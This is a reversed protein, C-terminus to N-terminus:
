IKKCTEQISNKIGNLLRNFDKLPVTLHPLVVIVDGLPRIWVGHSRAKECVQYGMRWSVPFPQRSPKDRVLEIGAMFGMQRVDGVVPLDRLKQLWERLLKTKMELNKIVSNKQYLGLNALAAACALPNATYTHGHFFTKFDEYKGLFAKYIDETAMTAALPLYGGTISKALCLLDPQIHEHAAAFMKGTRGFGTAVEDVILLVNYQRCLREFGSLYGPPMVIMGAAGQVLPEVIAAAIKESRSKLITEVSKLCEWHCGTEKRAEGPKPITQNLTEGGTRLRAETNIKRYSCRYCYPSQAFHAKFLLPKFKKHFLGMGGVSVSGITDGHYSNELALFSSRSVCRTDRSAYLQNWYQYAMKLAIEVSTAGSDSYFVRSLKQPTIEVLQKALQIAPEHTLGLFTTHAMKNLQQKIAKNLAPHNHGHVTTWLSSVGDLYRKGNVDTLYAGKASQIILPDSKEWDQQQTFPHWVHKKDWHNLLQRKQTNM